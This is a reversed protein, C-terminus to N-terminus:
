RRWVPRPGKAEWFGRERAEDRAVDMDGLYCGLYVTEGTKRSRAFAEGGHEGTYDTNRGYEWGNISGWVTEKATQADQRAANGRDYLHMAERYLRDREGADGSAAHQAALARIADALGEGTAEVVTGDLRTIRLTTTRAPQQTRTTQM